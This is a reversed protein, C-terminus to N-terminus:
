FRYTFNFLTHSRDGLGLEFTLSAHESFVHRAGIATNWDDAGGLVVNFPLPVLVPVGNQDVGLPLEVTGKHSEETDLFLGGIWYQWQGRVLGLRPQITTSDVNSDFSGGLDAETRTTTITTFWNDGGYALTFGLGIVSGDTSFPLASLPIPLGQIPAKSLDIVTDSEVHGLIGFINLFPLIWADIKIDFHQVDNTVGLLSPDGLTVGPLDFQLFDIKYDQDMTYFDIGIGWPRPLGIDGVKDKLFPLRSEANATMPMLLALAILLSRM